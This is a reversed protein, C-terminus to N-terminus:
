CPAELTAENTGATKESSLPSTVPLELTFTAGLGPGDSQARLAGGLERATLAGSHLGFGHGDKRTTFGHNFIRTLNEAPIGIGNDCVSIKIRGDGNFVRVTLRKDPRGTEECAYKANRVLNVLIQLVKHKETTILPLRPAFDRVLHVEHRALAGANMRLADEVLETVQAPEAVGAVRAYNQQMAVIDKIHDVNATLQRLEHLVATQEAALHRSVKEFYLPLQKGKSDATLFQPLDSEHERLLAVADLLNRLRSKNAREVLLSASVNVSNLVNGVNHLVSTAVEAMGAHRSTDLLQKHLEELRDREYALDKTRQRVQRRLLAAWALALLLLGSAGALGWLTRRANWWPPRQFVTVDQPRNGYLEFSNIVQAFDPLSDTEAKLVGRVRIRSGVPITPLLGHNTPFFASFARARKEDQLQLTQLSDQWGSGLVVAKLEARTADLNSLDTELLDIANARPLSVRGKKRVLAQVLKPAFGDPEAFGVVEVRDGPEADIGGRPVVRLGDTAQQVFLTRPSKYTLIGETKILQFPQTGAETGLTTVEALPTSRVAFPDDPFAKLVQVHELSPTLLRVGVVMNRNNMVPSCVGSISVTDGLLNRAASDDMQNIWVMLKGGPAALVVRHEGAERVVGEIKVWHSFEQCDLLYEMSHRPAEPMQGRGLVKVFGSATLNQDPPSYEGAVEVYLGEQQLFPSVGAGLSGVVYLADSGDQLYFGGLDLDLYTIVGRVRVPFNKKPQQQGLEFAEGLTTVPTRAVAPGASDTEAAPQGQGSAPRTQSLHASDPVWVLGAVHRGRQDFVSQVVGTVSLRCGVPASLTAQGDNLIRATILGPGDSQKLQLTPHLFDASVSLLDGEVAALVFPHGPEMPAGPRLSPVSDLPGLDSLEPDSVQPLDREFQLPGLLGIREGTKIELDPRGLRFPQFGTEDLLGVIGNRSDWSVVVARINLFVPEPPHSRVSKLWHLNVVPTELGALYQWQVWSSKNSNAGTEPKGSAEAFDLWKTKAEHDFLADAVEIPPNEGQASVIVSFADKSKQGPAYLPEIEALQVCTAANPARVSDIALRYIACSASQKLTFARRHFRTSFSENRRQDITQWTKGGDNSGLVRWDRPDREPGDNASTLAYGTLTRLPRTSQAALAALVLPARDQLPNRTALRRAQTLYQSISTVETRADLSFQCQIWSSSGRGYDVWRTTPDQDFADSAPGILPQERSSTIVKKLERGPPVNADPGLLELEALHVSQRPNIRLRYLSFVTENTIGFLRRESRSKFVQNTQTDLTVWTQGGDNSALLQWNRPDAYERSYASTLAYQRVIRGPALPEQGL